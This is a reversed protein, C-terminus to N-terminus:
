ATTPETSCDVMTELTKIVYAAHLLALAVAKSTFTRPTGAMSLLTSVLAGPPLGAAPSCLTVEARLDEIMHAARQLLWTQEVMSVHELENAAHFLLAVLSRPKSRSSVVRKGDVPDFCPRLRAPYM